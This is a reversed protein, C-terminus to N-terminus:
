LDNMTENQLNNRIRNPLIRLKNSNPWKNPKSCISLIKHDKHIVQILDAWVEWRLWWEPWKSVKLDWWWTPFTKPSLDWPVWSNSFKTNWEELPKLLKLILSCYWVMSVKWLTKKKMDSLMMFTTTSFSHFYYLFSKLLNSEKLCTM